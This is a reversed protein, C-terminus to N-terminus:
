VPLAGHVGLAVAELETRTNTGYAGTAKTLYGAPRLVTRIGLM